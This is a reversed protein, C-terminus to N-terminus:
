AGKLGPERVPIRRRWSVLLGVALEKGPGADHGREVALLWRLFGPQRAATLSELLETLAPDPESAGDAKRCWDLLVDRMSEYTTPENLAHGTLRVMGSAAEGGALVRDGFWALDAGAMLPFAHAVILGPVGDLAAWEPMRDLITGRTRDDGATICLVLVETISAAVDVDERDGGLTGMLRDMLELTQELRPGGLDPRCAYAVAKRLPAETAVSWQNLLEGAKLMAAPNRAVLGLCRAAIEAAPPWSSLVLHHLLVLTRGGTAAAMAATAWGAREIHLPDDGTGALWAHVLPSLDEHERYLVEWLADATTPWYFSAIDPGHTGIQPGCRAGLVRFTESLPQQRAVGGQSESSQRFLIQVTPVHEWGSSAAELLNAAREAVVSRELGGYVCLSLLHALLQPDEQARAMLESAETRGLAYLAEAGTDGDATGIRTLAEAAQTARRPPLEPPLVESLLGSELSRLIRARKQEDPCVDKLHSAFVMRPDPPLHRIVPTGLHETVASALGPSDTLVILLRAGAEALTMELRSLDWPRLMLLDQPEMVLYGHVRHPQPEWRTLDVAGDVQYLVADERGHALLNLAHTERGTGPPGVLVAIGAEFAALAGEFRPPPVFRRRAARLDKARVPGQRMPLAAPSGERLATTSVIQRQDGTVLGTNVTGNPAVVVMKQESSLAAFVADFEGGPLVNSTM